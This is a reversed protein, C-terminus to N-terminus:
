KGIGRRKNRMEVGCGRLGGERREEKKEAVKLKVKEWTNEQGRSSGHVKEYGREKKEERV